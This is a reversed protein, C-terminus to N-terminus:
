IILVANGPVVELGKFALDTDGGGESSVDFGPDTSDEVLGGTDQDLNPAGEDTRSAGCGIALSAVVFPTGALVISRTLKLMPLSRSHRRHLHLPAFSHASRRRTGRHRSSPSPVARPRCSSSCPATTSSSRARCASSTSSRM